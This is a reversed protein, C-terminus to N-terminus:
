GLGRQCRQQLSRQGDVAYVQGIVLVDEAGHGGFGPM